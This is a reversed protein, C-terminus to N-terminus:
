TQNGPIQNSSQGLRTNVSHHYPFTVSFTTGEGVKSECHIDGGYQKVIGYSISLGLGTGKGVPKTTYFPSFIQSLNEEPIGPGTDTIKIRFDIEGERTAVTITGGKPM